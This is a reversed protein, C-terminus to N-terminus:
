DKLVENLHSFAVKLVNEEYKKASKSVYNKFSLLKIEDEKSLNEMTNRLEDIFNRNRKSVEYITLGFRRSHKVVEDELMVIYRDRDEEFLYDKIAHIDKFIGRVDGFYNEFQYPAYEFSQARNLVFLIKLDRNMDKLMTYIISANIADQEGDLIPIVVLDLFHIMGSDDLAELFRMATKNAGVDLCTYEDKAFIQTLNEKLLPSAVTIMKRNSLHSAGFSLSDRNEDDFEYYAIPQNNNKTYLYPTIMQMSITSKGVGGKTSVIAIKLKKDQM